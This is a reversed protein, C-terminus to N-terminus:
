ATFLQWRLDAMMVNYDMNNNITNNQNVTLTKNYQSGSNESGSVQGAVSVGLGNLEDFPERITDALGEAAKGVYDYQSIMGEALGESIYEGIAFMRRSPSSVAMATEIKTAISNAINDAIQLVNAKKNNMGRGLGDIIYGGIADFRMGPNTYEYFKESITNVIGDVGTKLVEYKKPFGDRIAEVIKGGIEQLKTMNSEETMKTFIQDMIHQQTATQITPLTNIFGQPLSTTLFEQVKYAFEERKSNIGEVITDVLQTGLLKANEVVSAIQETNSFTNIFASFFSTINTAQEALTSTDWETMTSKFNGLFTVINSLVDTDINEWAVQSWDDGVQKFGSAVNSMATKFLTGDGIAGGQLGIGVNNVLNNIVAALKEVDGLYNMISTYNTKSTSESSGIGFLGGGNKSSTEEEKLMLANLAEFISNITSIFLDKNFQTNSIANMITVIGNAFSEFNQMHNLVSDYEGTKNTSASAIGWLASAEASEESHSEFLTEFLASALNSILSKLNELQTETITSSINLLKTVGDAFTGFHSLHNFISDQQVKYKTTSDSDLFKNYTNEYESETSFISYNLTNALDIIFQKLANVKDDGLEKITLLTQLSDAFGKFGSLHNFISDYQAKYDNKYSYGITGESISSETSFVRVTENLTASLDTILKKIGNIKSSGLEKISLLTGLSEAFDKFHSLHNFISDYEKNSSYSSFWDKIEKSEKSKFTSAQLVEGLSKLFKTYDNPKLETGKFVKGIEQLGKGLESFNQLSTLLSKTETKSVAEFGWGSAKTETNFYNFAQLSEGINNLFKTFDDPDIDKGFEKLLNSIDKLGSALTGFNQFGELVSKQTTKITKSVGLFESYSAEIDYTVFSRLANGINEVFTVFDNRDTSNNYSKALESLKKLAETTPGLNGLFDLIGKTTQKYTKSAGLFQSFTAEIDNTLFAKLSEGLNQVFQVFDSAKMEKTDKALPQLEKLATIVSSFKDFYDLVAKTEVKTSGQILGWFGSVKEEIDYTLFAKLSDGLNSLFTTFEDARFDADKVMNNLSNLPEIINGLSGLYDTVSKVNVESYNGFVKNIWSPKFEVVLFAQLATAINELASSFKEADFNYSSILSQLKNMPEVITGLTGMYDTVSKIQIDGVFVKQLWSPKLESILFTKLGNSLATMSDQLKKDEIKLNSVLNCLDTINKIADGLNQFHTLTNETKVFPLNITTYCFEKLGDALPKLKQFDKTRVDRMALLGVAIEQLGRGIGEFTMAATAFDGLKWFLGGLAKALDEIVDPIKSADANNLDGIGKALYTFGDGVAQLGKGLVWIGGGVMAIFGGIAAGILLIAAAGMAIDPLAKGLASFAGVIFKGIATGVSELPKSPIGGFAKFGKTLSSLVPSVKKLTIFGGIAVVLATLVPTPIAKLAEAVVHLLPALVKLAVTLVSSGIVAAFKAFEAAVPVVAQGLKMLSELISKLAGRFSEDKLAKPLGIALISVFAGLLPNVKFLNFFSGALGKISGSLNGIIGGIGPLNSGLNGFMVLAGGVIPLLLETHNALTDFAKTLAPAIKDILPVFKDIMQAISTGLKQVSAILKPNRLNDALKKLINTYTQALGTELKQGTWKDIGVLSTAFTSISGKLRDMQRPITNNMKNLLNEYMEPDVIQGMAKTFVEMTVGGESIFDKLDSMSKGTVKALAPMIAVGQNVLQYMDQTMMKGQASIQGYVHGLAGLDAGTAVGIAGLRALDPAVDDASRGMAVLERAVNSVDLLQYPNESAFNAVSTLVTEAGKVSGTLAEFSLRNKELSSGINMGKSVMASMATSAAGAATTFANFSVKGLASTFQGLAGLSDDVFKRFAKASDNSGQTVSDKLGKGAKSGGQNLKDAFEDFQKGAKDLAKQFEQTDATIVYKLTGGVDSNM